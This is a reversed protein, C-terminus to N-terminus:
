IGGYAGGEDYVTAPRAEHEQAYGVQPQTRGVARVTSSSGSSSSREVPSYVSAPVRTTSSGDMIPVYSPTYKVSVAPPLRIGVSPDVPDAFPSETPSPVRPSSAIPSVASSSSPDAFPSPSTLSRGSPTRVLKEDDVTAIGYGYGYTASPLSYAISSDTQAQSFPFEGPGPKGYKTGFTMRQEINIPPPPPLDKEPLGVNFPNVQHILQAEKTKRRRQRVIFFGFVGLALIAIIVAAVIGVINGTSTTSGSTSSETSTSADSTTSTSPITSQSAASALFTSTLGTSSVTAASLITSSMSASTVQSSPATSTAPLISTNPAASSSSTSTSSAKTSSSTRHTEDSSTTSFFQGIVDSLPNSDGISPIGIGFQRKKLTENRSFVKHLRRHVGASGVM